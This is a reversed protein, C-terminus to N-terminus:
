ACAMSLPSWLCSVTIGYKQIVCPVQVRGRAESLLCDRQLYESGGVIINRVLIDHGSQLGDVKLGLALYVGVKPPSPTGRLSLLTVFPDDM